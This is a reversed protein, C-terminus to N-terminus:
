KIGKYRGMKGKFIRFNSKNDIGGMRMLTTYNIHTMM